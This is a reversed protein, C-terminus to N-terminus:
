NRRPSGVGDASAPQARGEKLWRRLAEIRERSSVALPVQRAIAAAVDDTTFERDASFAVYMADIVAQEIEAGTYGAALEALRAVDYDRAFRRRKTLHVEVIEAREALTPLDLFFLEDFRGRRLLEPPLSSVDNATAVVFAPATKEQMWTLITGFVRQSVGGDNGGTAFAKEMEDIWLVCPAATEAIRLARRAREESEGVFSGFLAGVDLRLLPLKWVSGIMKAVLSKGTGPLGVLAIGKPAPLGYDRAQRTFARERLRLWDKLAELGGVDDASQSATYFELAQSQRVLQQKERMVLDIGRDDLGGYTVVAKAFVRGAQSASLGLAAQVLKERGLPTLRSKTGPSGDLRALVAELEAATPPPLEIVVADDRLEDPLKASPTVVVITKRTSKLKQALSRLKRRAPAAAWADHFDKLVFVTDTDASEVHDLAGAADKAVPPRGTSGALHQFGEATDWALAPRRGADCVAKVAAVAREEEPTVVVVLTARARLLTELDKEFTM